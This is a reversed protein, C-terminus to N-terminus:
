IKPGSPIQPGQRGERLARSADFPLEAGADGAGATGGKDEQGAGADQGGAAGASGTCGRVHGLICRHVASKTRGEQQGGKWLLSHKHGVLVAYRPPLEVMDDDEEVEEEEEQQEKAEEGIKPQEQEASPAGEQSAAPETPLSPQARPPTVVRKRRLEALQQRTAVWLDFLSKLTLPLAEFGCEEAWCTQLQVLQCYAEGSGRVQSRAALLEQRLAEAERKKKDVQQQLAAVDQEVAWRHATADATMCLMM